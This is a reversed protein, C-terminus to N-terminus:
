LVLYSPPAASVVEDVKFIVAGIKGLAQTQTLLYQDIM